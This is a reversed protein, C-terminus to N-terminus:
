CLFNDLLESIDIFMAVEVQSIITLTVLKHMTGLIKGTEASVTKHGHFDKLGQCFRCPENNWLHIEFM